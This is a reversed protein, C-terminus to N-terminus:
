TPDVPIIEDKDIRQVTNIFEEFEFYCKTLDFDHFNCKGSYENGGFSRAYSPNSFRTFVTYVHTDKDNYFIITLYGVRPLSLKYEYRETKGQEFFTENKILEANKSEMLQKLNKVWLDTNRQGIPRM